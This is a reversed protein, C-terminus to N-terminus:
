QAGGTSRPIRKTAPAAQQDAPSITASAKFLDRV